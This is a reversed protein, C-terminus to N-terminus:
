TFERSPPPDSWPEVVSVSRGQQRATDQDPGVLAPAGAVGLPGEATIEDPTPAWRALRLDVGQGDRALPTGEVRWRALAEPRLHEPVRGRASVVRHWPVGSGYRAMVAGATRPGGHEALESVDGYTVM